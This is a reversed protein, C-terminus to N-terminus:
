KLEASVDYSAVQNENMHPVLVINSAPVFGIDAAGPKFQRIEKVDGNAMVHYLKGALYDTALYGGKGDSELGDINGIPKQTIRTKKKTTLDYAYINGPIDTTFDAKPQSGWSGVILRTGDVLLGNPFELRWRGGGDRCEATSAVGASRASNSRATM